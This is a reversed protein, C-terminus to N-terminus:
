SRRRKSAVSSSDFLLSLLNRAYRAFGHKAVFDEWGPGPRQAFRKSDILEALQEAFLTPSGKDPVRVICEPAEISAALNESAVGSMGASVADLLAGSVQGFPIQRIQLVIDVAQLYQVYKAESVGGALSVYEEIGLRRAMEFLESRLEESVPGVFVFQMDYGWEVLEKITYLCQKAGKLFHVEGFSAICPRASDIGLSIKAQLRVGKELQDREFPYPMAVPFYMAQVGYLKRIVDAAIPSHVIVPNAYRLIESLFPRPLKEVNRVINALEVDDIKKGLEAGVIKRLREEGFRGILFDIMHADHLILAGGYWRMRDFIKAYMPHNGLVYVIEDYRQSDFHSDLAFVARVKKRHAPLMEADTWVDVDAIESMAMVLDLSSHPPGGKQPFMTSMVAIRPRRGRIADATITPVSRLVELWFASHNFESGTGMIPLSSAIAAQIANFSIGSEEVSLVRGGLLRVEEESVAIPSAGAPVLTVAARRVLRGLLAPSPLLRILDATRRDEASEGGLVVLRANMSRATGALARMADRHGALSGDIAIVPRVDAFMLDLQVEELMTLPASLSPDPLTPLVATSNREGTRTVVGETDTVLSEANREFRTERSQQDCLTVFHTGSLVAPRLAQRLESASGIEFVLMSERRFPPAYIVRDRLPELSMPLAIGWKAFFCVDTLEFIESPIRQILALVARDLPRYKLPSVQIAQIDFVIRDVPVCFRNSPMTSESNKPYEHM